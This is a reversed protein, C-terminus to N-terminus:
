PCLYALLDDTGLSAISDVAAKATVEPSKVLKEIDMARGM